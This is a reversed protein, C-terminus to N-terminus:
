VILQFILQSLFADFRHKTSQPFFIMPDVNYFAINAAFTVVPDVTRFFFILLSISNAYFFGITVNPFISDTSICPLDWSEIVFM